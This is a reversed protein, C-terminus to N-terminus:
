FRVKLSTSIGAALDDDFTYNARQGYTQGDIVVTNSSGGTLLAVAGAVRFEVNKTPAYAAGVGLTWTDTQTGFDQSTGRDWTVSVAGSWQENFKHGVGGSVTWGDRYGLDLSTVATSTNCVGSVAVNCYFPIKQFQSWDTWKVSGFALWGPAIGSQVKLEVVDPMNQSGNVGFAGPIASNVQTLDLTGTIDNLKVESNYVLSARFAYEPIEYAVGARWGWGDGELDLRGVGTLPVGAPFAQVLREQFGYVEQYFTGGILRLQGPGADFRYSCTVAYNRSEVKTEIDENAGAWNRGQNKHAGWPESYDFMCDAADGIAAKAGIRPVWYSESGDASNPLSNLNGGGLGTAPTPFGTTTDVDRVNNLERQPAVFTVASEAAFRGEDFLLDINYGGRELGGALATSTLACSAALALIGKSILTKKM